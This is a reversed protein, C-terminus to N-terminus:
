DKMSLIAERVEDDSFVADPDDLSKGASGSGKVPTVVPPAKTQQVPKPASM